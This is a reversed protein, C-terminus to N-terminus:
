PKDATSSKGNTFGNCGEATAKTKLNAASHQLRKMPTHLCDNKRENASGNREYREISGHMMGDDRGAVM